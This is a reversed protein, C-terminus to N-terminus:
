IGKIFEKLKKFQIESDFELDVKKKAELVLNDKLDKENYLEEIKLALDEINENEFLLGNIRDDIIELFGGGKSAIIATQNKMAEIVVLGFTENKSAAVIVDCAQMFKDPEKSFGLFHIENELNYNKVKEKLSNLYEENMPHGVFYAKVDLKKIKLKKMAEILLYQGKFENIRGVFGIIFSNKSNLKEEKYINLEEKTFVKPNKAGLYLTKVKPRINQPIFKEIQNQLAKTVCIITDVNKYLFKHYFDNKFRTMTMHRTQIIKPKRKSLLKAFIIIPIDKTWHIHITDIKNKDIIKAIKISSILSFSSKREIKIVNLDELFSELKSNNSIVCTVNFDKALEKSCNCMYLELGGLDPSLCVELINKNQM